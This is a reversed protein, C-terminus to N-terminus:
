KLQLESLEVHDVVTDAECGYPLVSANWLSRFPLVEQIAINIMGPNREVTINIVIDNTQGDLPELIMTYYLPVPEDKQLM